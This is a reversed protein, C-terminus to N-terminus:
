VDSAEVNVILVPYFDVANIKNKSKIDHIHDEGHSKVETEIIECTKVDVQSESIISFEGRAIAEGITKATTLLM